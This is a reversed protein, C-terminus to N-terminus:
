RVYQEGLFRCDEKFMAMIIIDGGDKAARKMRGEEKFGLHQDFRMAEKNSETLWASIRTCGLQMFPYRFMVGLFRKTLWHKGESGAIHAFINNGNYERYVVGAILEGDEELGIAACANWVSQRGTKSAVWDCIREEQAKDYIITKM